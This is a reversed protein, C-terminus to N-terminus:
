TRRTAYAAPARAAYDADTLQRLDCAPVVDHGIPQPVHGPSVLDAELGASRFGILILKQYRFPGHLSAARRPRNPYYVRPNLTRREPTLDTSEIGTLVM